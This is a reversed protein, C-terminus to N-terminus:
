SDAIAVFGCKTYLWLTADDDRIASVIEDCPLGNKSTLTRMEHNKWRVVGSWTAVWASGDPDIALDQYGIEVNTPTAGRTLPFIELKGSRYHGLNGDEFGLWIGGTPDPAIRRVLPIRDSAFEEQVRLDRIRVLKRDSSGVDLSVWVNHERDETIAA